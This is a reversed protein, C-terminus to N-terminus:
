DLRAVIGYHHLRLVEHQLFEVAQLGQLCRWWANFVPRCDYLLQVIAVIWEENDGGCVGIVTCEHLALWNNHAFVRM